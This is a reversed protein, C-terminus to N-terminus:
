RCLTCHKDDPHNCYWVGNAIMETVTPRPEEDLPQPTWMPETM